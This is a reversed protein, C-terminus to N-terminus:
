GIFYGRTFFAISLLSLIICFAYYLYRVFPRHMDLWSALFIFMPFLVIVYRPLSSLTGTFTPLIYSLACFVWYSLRIKKISFILLLLFLLGVLFELVVTFYVSNWPDVTLLMKFYRYFVQYLLILKETSRGSMLNQVNIFFFPDGTMRFQYYMYSLLGLPPVALWLAKPTLAKKLSGGYVNFFEIILAFWVFIGTVRTATAIAALICALPFNNKRAFYFSLVALLLFTSENYVSGFFFSTPFILILFLTYKAIKPTHDLRILKYLMFLSLVFALNSVILGSVTFNGILPNTTKILWPYVPFFAYDKDTKTSTGYNYKAIDQYHLGDFNSWMKLLDATSAVPTLDTFNTKPTIVFMALVAVLFILTRWALFYKIVTKLSM